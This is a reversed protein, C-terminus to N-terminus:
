QSSKHKIKTKLMFYNGDHSPSAWGLWIDWNTTSRRYAFGVFKGDRIFQNKWGDFTGIKVCITGKVPIGVVKAAFGYGPNRCIWCTRYWWVTFVNTETILEPWQVKWGDLSNDHTYFWAFIKPTANNVAISYLAILPSIIISVLNIIISLLAYITWKIYMM